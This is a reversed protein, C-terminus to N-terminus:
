PKLGSPSRSPKDIEIKEGLAKKPKKGTTPFELVKDDTGTSLKKVEPKKANDIFRQPAIGENDLLTQIDSVTISKNTNADLDMLKHSAIVMKIINETAKHASDLYGQPHQGSMYLDEASTIMGDYKGFTKLALDREEISNNFIISFIEDLTKGEFLKISKLKELGTDEEKKEEDM